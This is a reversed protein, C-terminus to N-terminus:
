RTPEDGARGRAAPDKISPQYSRLDPSAKSTTEARRGRAIVLCGRRAGTEEAGRLTPYFLQAHSTGLRTSQRSLYEPTLARGAGYDDFGYGPDDAVQFDDILIITDNWSELIVDLEEALPLVTSLAGLDPLGSPHADLYFFVGARPVDPDSALAELMKRSDGRLVTVGASTEFRRRAFTYFYPSAEVTVVPAHASFFDSTQGRYTGTEVILSPRYVSLLSEVM